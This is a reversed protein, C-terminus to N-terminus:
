QLIKSIRANVWVISAVYIFSSVCFAWAVGSIGVSHVFLFILLVFAVSQIAKPLIYIKPMSQVFGKLTLLEAFRALFAGLTFVWLMSYYQAYVPNTLLRLIERGAVGMLLLIPFSIATFSALVYRIKRGSVNIHESDTVTGVKTFVVPVIFQHLVAALANIPTSAILLLAAYIGVEKEGFMGLLIWRDAYSAIVGCAAIPVFAVAYSWLQGLVVKDQEHLIGTKQFLESWDGKKKLLYLQMVVVLGTGLTFGALAVHASRGIAWMAVVAIGTRLWPDLAQFVAVSKRERVATQLTLLSSQAGTVVALIASVFFLWGWQVGFIAGAIFSLVVSISMVFIFLREHGTRVGRLLGGLNGKEQWIPFYRAIANALPGYAFQGSLGVFTLGLTLIGYNQVSMLNTLLKITAVGGLLAVFQGVAVWYLEKTLHLAFLHTKMSCLFGGEGTVKGPRLLAIQRVTNCCYTVFYRLVSYHTIWRM